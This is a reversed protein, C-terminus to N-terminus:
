TLPHERQYNDLKEILASPVNDFKTWYEHAGLEKARNIRGPETFDSLAIIVTQVPRNKYQELFEIGNMSPLLMDLLIFDYENKELVDLALKGDAVIDVDYGAAALPEKYLKQIVPFDEIMLVRKSM